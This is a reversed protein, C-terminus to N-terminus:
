PDAKENQNSEQEGNGALSNREKRQLLPLSLVLYTNKNM